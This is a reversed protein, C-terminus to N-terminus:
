RGSIERVLAGTETDWLRIYNDQGVTALVEGDPSASVFYAIDAHAFRSFHKEGTEINWVTLRGDGSAGAVFPRNPVFAIENIFGGQNFRWQVTDRDLNMVILTDSGGGVAVLPAAVDMNVLKQDSLSRRASRQGDPVTWTTLMGDEDVMYIADGAPTWGLDYTEPPRNARLVETGSDVRWVILRGSPHSQVGAVYRGNPSFAV